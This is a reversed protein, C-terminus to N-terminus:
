RLSEAIAILDEQTLRAGSSGSFRLSFMWDETTWDLSIEGYEDTWAPTSTPQGEVYLGTSLSGRYITGPYGNVEVIQIAEAPYGTDSAAANPTGEGTLPRQYVILVPGNSRILDAGFSGYFLMVSHSSPEYRAHSFALGEPLVDPQYIPYGAATEVADIGTFAQEWGMGPTPTAAEDVAPQAELQEALAVLYHAAQAAGGTHNLEFWLGGNQWRLREVAAQGDWVANAGDASPRFQGRVYEAPQRDVSVTQIADQPAKFWVAEDPASLEHDSQVIWLQADGKGYWYASQGPRYDNRLYEYGEPTGPFQWPTFGVAAAAQMLQCDFDNSEPCRAIARGVALMEDRELYAPSFSENLVFQIDITVDEVQWRLTYIESRDEWYAQDSGAPTFWLGRVFEASTAGISITEVAADAGVEFPPLHKGQTISFFEGTAAKPSAYLMTVAQQQSDYQIRILRYNRPLELPEYLDFGIAAEAELLTMDQMVGAQSHLTPTITPTPTVIEGAPHLALAHTPAPTRTPAPPAIQDTPVPLTNGQARTFFQMLADALVKGAPTALLIVSLLMVAAVFAFRQKKMWASRYEGTNSAWPARRMCQHYREGPEPRISRLLDEIEEEEIRIKKIPLDSM